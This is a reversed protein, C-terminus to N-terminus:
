CDNRLEKNDFLSPEPNKNLKREIEELMHDYMAIGSGDCTDAGIAAFREYRRIENVRGIHVHIQLTKATKVLDQSARSDKWPDGGGVFLADMESWPMELDECGDQAVFAMPWGNIFQQRYRWLELTRRGNAVIDPCVVFLCKGRNDQERHLLRRFKTADFGSFAGNDIAFTEGTNKYGTIPTILQGGVLERGKFKAAFNAPSTDVLFKM